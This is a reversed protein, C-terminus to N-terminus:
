RIDIEGWSRLHGFMEQFRKEYTYHALARRQGADAIRRREDDHALYHKAKDAMEDLTRFVVIEKDLEFVHEIGQVYRTLYFGGCGCTVYARNCVARDVHPFIDYGLSIKTLHVIRAYVDNFALGGGWARGVKSLILPLTRLKRPIHFGWWKIGIGERLVRRIMDIRESYVVHNVIRGVFVVDSSYKRRDDDSIADFRHSDPDFAGSLWAVKDMGRQKFEEVMGFAPTFFANHARALAVLWDPMHPDVDDHWLITYVGRGKLAEVWEPAVVEGKYLLHVDPKFADLQRDLDGKLDDTSRYDLIEAEHGLGRLGKVLYQGISWPRNNAATVLIRAM